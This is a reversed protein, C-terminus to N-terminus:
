PAAKMVFGAANNSAIIVDQLNVTNDGTLDTNYYGNSFVAADNFIAVIDTLNINGDQTVDGNYVAFRVPSVDTQIMNSGYAKSSSSTFDYTSFSMANYNEGGAKSWTEVFSRHRLVIYYNGSVAKTFKFNGTLTASDIVASSTDAIAFPASANRLLARVTDSKNMRNNTQDYYGQIALSIKFNTKLVYLGTLMDSAIIKGSPFMYVAWCGNYSQGNDFAFTDYWAVENPSAPNSIDILRVGATYHAVLAYKGYIEVNHVISTTIGTPQWATIFNIDGLDEINWIKLRYPATGIEDTVLLHKRDPTVATNHPGAGTLNTFSTVLAPANKNVANIISVKGTYINAAYITDNFVRCDHVYDANYGGRTVPNEPDLSLDLIVVGNGYGANSGSVYLYPGSQSITHSKTHFPPVFKKVYRVSDPLYRLDVIQIGSNAVESVIYAYHSYVKMERWLNSSSAPNTSPIFDVEHINAADTIDVFSTGDYSGVIAYERGDPAVYGWLASYNPTRINLNKLLYMDKHGLQASSDKCALLIALLIVLITLKNKM